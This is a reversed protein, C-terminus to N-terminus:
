KITQYVEFIDLTKMLMLVPQSGLVDHINHIMYVDIIM